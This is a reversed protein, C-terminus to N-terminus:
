RLGKKELSLRLKELCRMRTAGISGKAFGLVEAAQEYRLPPDAFFLLNILRLCEPSAESLAKRLLQDRELEQLIEEPLKDTEALEHEEIDLDSFVEQERKWHLCKRGTMRILWAALAQPERLKPLERLLM